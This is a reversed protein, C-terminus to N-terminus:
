GRKPKAIALFCILFATCRFAILRATLSFKLIRCCLKPLISITTSARLSAM